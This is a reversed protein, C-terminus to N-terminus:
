WRTVHHRWWISVNEANSTMQEPFKGTWPSNRACLGTVRLKSTKKSRRRFLRNLLCDHPQHSAIAGMIVDGYHDFPQAIEVTGDLSRSIQRYPMKGSLSYLGLSIATVSNYHDYRESMQCRSQFLKFGFRAAEINRSIKRYSARRSISYLGQYWWELVADAHSVQIWIQVVQKNKSAFMALQRIGLTM